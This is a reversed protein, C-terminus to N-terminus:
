GARAQSKLKQYVRLVSPVYNLTERFPPIHRGYHEVAEEGANYAALALELNSGFRAILDSLYRAGARVNQEPDYIDTVGYRRATEPRLQMLGVAGKKSVARPNFGSEVVIVASVLAPQITAALAAGRIMHEYQSSRALWDVPHPKAASTEAPADSAILLQYRTDTPVNSFHTVGSSDTFSYVDALALGPAAAVASILLFLQWTPM